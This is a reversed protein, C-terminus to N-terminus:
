CEKGVRREESRKLTQDNNLKTILAKYDSIYYDTPRSSGYELYGQPYIHIHGQSRVIGTQMGFYINSIFGGFMLLAVMGIVMALITTISRRKNRLLNRVALKLNNM